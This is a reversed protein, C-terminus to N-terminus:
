SNPTGKEREVTDRGDPDGLCFLVGAVWDGPGAAEKGPQPSCPSPLHGGGTQGGTGQTQQVSYPERSFLCKHLLKPTDTKMRPQEHNSRTGPSGRPLEPGRTLGWPPSLSLAPPPPHAPTPSLGAPRLLLTAEDSLHKAQLPTM